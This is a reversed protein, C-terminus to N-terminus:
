IKGPQQAMVRVSKGQKKRRTQIVSQRFRCIVGCRLANCSGWCTVFDRENQVRVCAEKLQHQSAYVMMEKLGAELRRCGTVSVARPIDMHKHQIVVTCIQSGSISSSNCLLHPLYCVENALPLQADRMGKLQKVHGEHWKM